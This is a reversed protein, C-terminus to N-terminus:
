SGEKTKFFDVLSSVVGTMRDIEQVGDAMNLVSASNENSLKQINGIIRDLIQMSDTHRNIIEQIEAMLGKMSDSERHVNENVEIQAKM